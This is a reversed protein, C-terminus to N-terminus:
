EEFKLDIEGERAWSELQKKISRNTGHMAICLKNVFQIDELNKRRKQIFLLASM